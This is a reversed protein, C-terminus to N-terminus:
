PFTWPITNPQGPSPGVNNPVSIPNPGMAQPSEFQPLAAAPGQPQPQQAQQIRQIIAQQAQNTADIGQGFQQQWAEPDALYQQRMQELMQQHAPDANQVLGQQPNAFGGGPLQEGPQLDEDLPLAQSLWYTALIHACPRSQFRRFERTRPTNQFLGWNCPCSSYSIARSQPDNRHIEPQYTGHDGQVQGVVVNYGNRLVRVRGQQVLMKAKNQVQNWDATKRMEETGDIEIQAREYGHAGLRAALLEEALYRDDATGTEPNSGIYAVGAEVQHWHLEVRGIHLDHKPLTIPEYHIATSVLDDLVSEEDRSATIQWNM